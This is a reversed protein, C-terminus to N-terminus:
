AQPQGFTPFIEFVTVTAPGRNSADPAADAAGADRGADASAGGDPPPTTGGDDGPAQGARTASSGCGIMM